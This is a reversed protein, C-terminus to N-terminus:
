SRVEAECWYGETDRVDYQDGLSINSWLDPQQVNVLAPSLSPACDDDTQPEERRRDDVAAPLNREGAMQLLRQRKSNTIKKNTHPLSSFETM